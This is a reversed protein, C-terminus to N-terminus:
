KYKHETYKYEKYRYCFCCGLRKEAFAQAAALEDNVAAVIAPMTQASERRNRAALYDKLAPDADILMGEAARAQAAAAAWQKETLSESIGKMAKKHQNYQM